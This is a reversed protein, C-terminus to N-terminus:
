NQTVGQANGYMLDLNFQAAADGQKAAKGYWYIAKKHDQIVGHGKDYMFGLNLQAATDGQTAAKEFWYVAQKYDQIAQGKAYMLGLSFQAKVNEQEAAKVYWSIAQEYDQTIGQGFHYILGLNYQASAIGKVALSQTYEFSPADEKSYTLKNVKTILLILSLLLISFLVVKKASLM